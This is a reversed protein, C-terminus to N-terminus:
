ELIENLKNIYAKYADEENEFYGLNYRKKDIRIESKWKSYNKYWYVGKYKSIIGTTNKNSITKNQNLYSEKKRIVGTMSLSMKLKSEETRKKGTNAIIRKQISEKTQKVGTSGDGGNTMNVLLGLKLDKRGYESILLCELECTDSWSLNNAIIEVSYNTKNIINNWFDSRNTKVYSRSYNKARGIGVYFIQNTDFRRHRYVYSTNNM